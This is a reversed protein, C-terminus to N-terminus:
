LTYQVSTGTFLFTLPRVEDRSLAESYNLAALMRRQSEADPSGPPLYAASQLQTAIAADVEGMTLLCLSQNFAAETYAPNLKTAREFCIQAEYYAHRMRFINGLHYYAVSVQTRKTEEATAMLTVQNLVEVAHGMRGEEKLRIGLELFMAVFEDGREERTARAAVMLLAKVFM